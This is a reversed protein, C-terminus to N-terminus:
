NKKRPVGFRGSSRTDPTGQPKGKSITGGM